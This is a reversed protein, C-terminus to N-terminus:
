RSLSFDEVAAWTSQEVPTNHFLESGAGLVWSTSSIVGSLIKAIGLPCNARRNSVVFLRQSEGRRQQKMIQPSRM